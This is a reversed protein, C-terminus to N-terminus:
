TLSSACHEKDSAQDETTENDVKASSGVMVSNTETVPLVGAGDSTSTKLGVM